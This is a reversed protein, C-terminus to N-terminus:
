DLYDKIKALIPISDLGHETAFSTQALSEVISNACNYNKDEGYRRTLEVLLELAYDPFNLMDAICALKLIRDPTTLHRNKDHEMLDRFWFAECAFFLQGRHEKSLIPIGRRKGRAIYSLDFLTFGNQRRLYVDIDGFLPQNEYLEIFMTEAVVALIGSKMLNSAGELVNLEGGQVDMMIIDIEQPDIKGFFDDLSITEIDEISYTTFSGETTSFEWMGSEEQYSSFRERMSLKPPYLSSGCPNRSVYLKQKGSSDWIAMPIHKETWNVNKAALNANLMDCATRDADFGYITLNPAFIEWGKGALNEDRSGVFCVTIHIRDLHGSKKLNQLFVSM